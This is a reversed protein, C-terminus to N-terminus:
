NDEEKEWWGERDDHIHHSFNKAHHIDLTHNCEDSCSECQKGDCIYAVYDSGEKRYDNLEPKHKCTWIACFLNWIFARHHPEDKDGRQFKLYHRVASDIYCRVDIGKRWNNDDYKKAGEEFHIAVELLMTFPCSDFNDLFEKIASYLWRTQGSEQFRSIDEIVSDCLYEAVVDLPLLDCRGKGEHIDRVAGSEFERRAGSDLIRPDEIKPLNAEERCKNVTSLGEVYEKYISTNLKDNSFEVTVSGDDEIIETTDTENKSNESGPIKRDWCRTCNLNSAYCGEWETGEYFYPGEHPCGSIGGYYDQMVNEPYEEMAKERFTM